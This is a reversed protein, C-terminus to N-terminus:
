KGKGTHVPAAPEAASVRDDIEQIHGSEILADRDTRSLAKVADANERTYWVGDRNFGKKVVYSLM